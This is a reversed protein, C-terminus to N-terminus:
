KLSNAMKKEMNHVDMKSTDTSIVSGSTIGTPHQSTTDDIASPNDAATDPQNSNNCSVVAILTFM